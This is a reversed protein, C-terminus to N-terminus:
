SFLGICGSSDIWLFNVMFSLTILQIDFSLKVWERKLSNLYFASGDINLCTIMGCLVLTTKFFLFYLSDTSVFINRFFWVRSIFWYNIYWISAQTIKKWIFNFLFCSWLYSSLNEYWMLGLHDCFIVFIASYMRVFWNM